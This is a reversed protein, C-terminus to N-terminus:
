AHSTARVDSFWSRLGLIQTRSQGPEHANPVTAAPGLRESWRQQERGSGGM